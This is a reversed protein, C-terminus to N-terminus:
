TPAKEAEKLWAKVGADPKTLLTSHKLKQNFVVGSAVKRLLVGSVSGM